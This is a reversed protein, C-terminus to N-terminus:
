AGFTHPGWVYTDEKRCLENFRVLYSIKNQYFNREIIQVDAAEENESWKVAFKSNSMLQNKEAYLMLTDAEKICKPEVPDLGYKEYIMAQIPKEVKRYEAGASTFHKLPRSLDNIYSESADHLLFRFAHERPSGCECGNPWLIFSGLYEHQTVPYPFKCHGTFRNIQSGSHAIDEICVMEPRPDM